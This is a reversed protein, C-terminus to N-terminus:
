MGGPESSEGPDAPEAAAQVALEHSRDAQTEAHEFNKHDMEGQHMQKGATIAVTIKDHTEKHAQAHVDQVMKANELTQDHTQDDMALLMKGQALNLDGEVKKRNTDANFQDIELRKAELQKDAKISQNEIKLAQAQQVDQQMQQMQEQLAQNQQQMQQIHQQVEPPLDVNGEEFNVNPFQAARLKKAIESMAKANKWDQIAIYDPALGSALAPNNQFLMEMGQVQNDRKTDSGPSMKCYLKYKGRNLDHYQGQNPDQDELAAVTLLVEKDDEGVILIQTPMDYVKNLVEDTANFCHEAALALNQGWDFNGTDAQRERAKIAVGSKENSQAGLSTEWMGLVDRIGQLTMQRLGVFAPDSQIPQEKWPRDIPNGKADRSKYPVVGNYNSLNDYIKQFKPDMSEIAMMIQSKPAMGAREVLASFAYNHSKQVHVAPEALGYYKVEGNVTVKRGTALFNPIYYGPWKEKKLVQKHALKAWWIQCSTTERTIPQGDKDKAIFAEAKLGTADTLEKIKAKFESLYYTGGPRIKAMQLIAASQPDNTVQILTDPTDQKFFYESVRPGTARSGWVASTGEAGLFQEPDHDPFEAKFRENSYPEYYLSDTVDSFNSERNSGDGHFLRTPDCELYKIEKQFSMPDQFKTIFRWAGLGGDILDEIARSLVQQFGGIQQIGRHLSAHVDAMEVTTGSDKPKVQCGFESQKLDNGVQFVFPGLLNETLTLRAPVQNQRDDWESDEWQARNGHARVFKKIKNFRDHHPEWYAKAKTFWKEVREVIEDDTIDAV